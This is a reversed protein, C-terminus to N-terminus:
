AMEVEGLERGRGGAAEFELDLVELRRGEGALTCAIRRGSLTSFAINEPPFHSDLPHQHAIPLPLPPISPPSSFPLASLDVFALSHKPGAGGEAELALVLEEDDVFDFEVVKLTTAGDSTALKCAAFSVAASDDAAISSQRALHVTPSGINLIMTGQAVRTRVRRARGEGDVTGRVVREEVQAGEGVRRVARAMIEGSLRAVLHLMVPISVPPKPRADEAPLRTSSLPTGPRREDTSAPDLAAFPPQVPSADADMGEADRGSGGSRESVAAVAEADIQGKLEETMRKLAQELTETGLREAVEQAETRGVKMGELWSEAGALEANSSLPVSALGFSLFPAIPSTSPALSHRIYSGVPLPLFSAQPRIESGEQQALKELEYHLWSSFSKFCREEEEAIRQLRASSRIVEKAVEVARLIVMRDFGYWAFKEPWRAWAEMELLLLVAREMAPEVSMWGVKKLRELALAMAQEWKVLGRENMKSALFDHLARTPRGTLLLLLLQTAPPHAVGHPRSVDTIRQLWGKGIRRAEDWLNRVEQLAEFAHQITARLASSQRIILHLSPPLPLSLRLLSLPSTSASASLALHIALHASTSSPSSPLVTVGIISDGEGANVSGIFISGGLYLHVMGQSDGVCLVTKETEDHTEGKVRLMGRVGADGTQAADDPRGDPLVTPFGGPAAERLNLVRQAEKARERELMAQKAGFVGGGPGGGIGGPGGLGGPGGPGGGSAASLGEKTIKPLAPLRLILDLAWSRLLPDSPLSLPQWSLHTVASSTPLPLSPPLLAQGTHVSVLALTSSDSPTAPTLAVALYNGNPSWALQEVKGVPSAKAKGKLALGGIATAKPPPGTPLWEWVLDANGATRWLSLKSVSSSNDPSPPASSLAALDRTPCCASPHLYSTSPLTKQTLVPLPQAM